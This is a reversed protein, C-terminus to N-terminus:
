VVPTGAQAPVPTQHWLVIRGHEVRFLAAASAGPADCSHGPRETLRFVVLVEDRREPVVRTIRGGCPLAANWTVADAHTQLVLERSQVVVASPAFLSAAAGDDSRDLAASWARAVAEPSRASHGGCAAFISACALIAVFRM